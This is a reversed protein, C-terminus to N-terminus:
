GRRTLAKTFLDTLNAVAKTLASNSERDKRHEREIDDLYRRDAKRMEILADIIAPTQKLREIEEKIKKLERDAVNLQVEKAQQELKEFYENIELGAKEANEIFTKNIRKVVTKGKISSM